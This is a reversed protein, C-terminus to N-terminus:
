VTCGAEWPPRSPPIHSCVCVRQRFEFIIIIFCKVLHQGGMLCRVACDTEEEKTCGGLISLGFEDVNGVPNGMVYAYMNPGDVMGLPDRTLWRNSDPSYYRYPYAYMQVAEDWTKGTFLVGPVDGLAVAMTGYPDYEVRAVRADNDDLMGRTSGLHDQMYSGHTGSSPNTGASQGLAQGVQGHTYTHSV